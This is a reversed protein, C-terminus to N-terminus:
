GDVQPRAESPRATFQALARSARQCEGGQLAMPESGAGTVVGFHDCALPCFPCTWNSGATSQAVSPETM